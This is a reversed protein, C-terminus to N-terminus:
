DNEGWDGKEAPVPRQVLSKSTVTREVEHYEKEDEEHLENQRYDPRDTDRASAWASQNSCNRTDASSVYKVTEKHEHYGKNQNWVGEEGEHDQNLNVTDISASTGTERLCLDLERLADHAILMDLLSGLLRGSSSCSLSHTLCEAAPIRPSTAHPVLDSYIKFKFWSPIYNAIRALWSLIDLPEVVIELYEEVIAIQKLNQSYIYLDYM